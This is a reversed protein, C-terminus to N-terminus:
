PIIPTLTLPNRNANSMVNKILVVANTLLCSGTEKAFIGVANIPSFLYGWANKLSDGVGAEATGAGLIVLLGAVVLWSSIKKM